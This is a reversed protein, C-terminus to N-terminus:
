GPALILPPRKVLGVALSKDIDEHSLFVDVTYESRNVIRVKVNM